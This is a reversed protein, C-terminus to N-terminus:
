KIAKDAKQILETLVTTFAYLHQEVRGPFEQQLFALNDNPTHWIEGHKVTQTYGDLDGIEWNTAEFYCYPIGADKFPAHDSWDGTTGAPYDPNLGPNTGMAIKQKKAIDLALDRLKGKNGQDGYVYLFDGAILSDLNIMAVTNKKEKDTMQSVYYKSGKLGAEESGFFIIKLTYPTKKKSLSKLTELVVGVSSANDDAGKGVSVSDYHAGIILQKSSKGPKTAIVNQSYVTNSKSTYSFEQTTPHLGLSKLQDVLYKSAAKEASTGSVRSGIQNSLQVIHQYAVQGTDKPKAAAISLPSFALAFMLTSLLSWKWVKM